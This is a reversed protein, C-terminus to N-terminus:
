GGFPATPYTIKKRPPLPRRAAPRAVTSNRNVKRSNPASSAGAALAGAAAFLATSNSGAGLDRPPLNTQFNAVAPTTTIADTKPSLSNRMNSRDPSCGCGFFGGTSFAAGGGAAPRGSTFGTLAAVVVFGAAGGFGIGM